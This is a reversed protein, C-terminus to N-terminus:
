KAACCETAKKCRKPVFIGIVASDDVTYANVNKGATSKAGTLPVAQCRHDLVTMLWSVLPRSSVPMPPHRIMIITPIGKGKRRRRQRNGGAQDQGADRARLGGAGIGGVRLRARGRRRNGGGGRRARVDAVFDNNGTDAGRELARDRDLTSEVPTTSAIEDSSIPLNGSVLRASDSWRMVPTDISRRLPSPASTVTRPKPGCYLRTVSFPRWSAADVLGRDAAVFIGVEAAVGATREVERFRADSPTSSARPRCSPCPQPGSRRCRAGRDVDHGALREVAAFAADGARDAHLGIVVVLEFSQM